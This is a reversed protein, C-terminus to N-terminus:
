EGKRKINESTPIKAMHFNKKEWKKNHSLIDAFREIHAMLPTGSIKFVATHSTDGRLGMVPEFELCVTQSFSGSLTFSIRLNGSKTIYGTTFYSAPGTWRFGDMILVLKKM